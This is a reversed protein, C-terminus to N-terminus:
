LAEHLVRLVNRNFIKEIEDDTFGNVSLGDALLSMKSCNDIDLKGQIGDFDTGIGIVDIGGVKKIHQIMAIIDQLRSTKDGKRGHLFEPEFNVGMVGGHSALIKIMEDTLNRQHPCITRSNSHTAVFPREALQAVDYFGGDSLHSVDVLMGIEQMHIVAEKGFDTLGSNMIATDTSNPFGFCNPRNWTLGLARVGLDYFHDLKEMKNDVARGDEMTLVASLKGAGLNAEMEDASKAVAIMDKSAAINSYFQKACGEIYTDDNGILGCLEPSNKNEEPLMYIAFFQAMVNGEKMYQFNVMTESDLLSQGESLYAITLSDCHMDITYNKM